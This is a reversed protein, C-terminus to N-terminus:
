KSMKMGKKKKKKTLQKRMLSAVNLHDKFADKPGYGLIREYGYLSGSEICFICLIIYFFCQM